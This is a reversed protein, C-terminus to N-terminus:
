ASAATVFVSPLPKLPHTIKAVRDFLALGQVTHVGTSVAILSLDLNM